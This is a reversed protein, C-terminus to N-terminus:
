FFIGVASHLEASVLDLIFCFFFPCLLQGLDERRRGPPQMYPFTTMIGDGFLIQIYEKMDRQLFEVM